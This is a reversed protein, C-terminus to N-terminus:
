SRDRVHDFFAFTIQSLERILIHMRVYIKPYPLTKLLIKSNYKILILQERDNVLKKNSFTKRNLRLQYNKSPLCDNFFIDQFESRPLLKKKRFIKLEYKLKNLVM